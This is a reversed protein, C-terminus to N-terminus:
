IGPFYIHYWTTYHVRTDRDTYLLIFPNEMSCAHMDCWYSHISILFGSTRSYSLAISFFISYPSNQEISSLRNRADDYANWKKNRILLLVYMRKATNNM